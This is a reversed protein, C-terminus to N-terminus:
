VGLNRAVQRAAALVLRGQSEFRDQLETTTAVLSIAAVARGTHDRVPAAVSSMGRAAEQDNVAFGRQRIEELATDFRAADDITAPTWTPFGAVRRAEAVVPDFAAIAKGSSTVHVPLCCNIGAMTQFRGPGHMREIYIVNATDPVGFHVTFGTRQRLDELVPM